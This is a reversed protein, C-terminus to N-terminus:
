EGASGGPASKKPLLSRDRLIRRGFDLRMAEDAPIEVLDTEEPPSTQKLGHVAVNREMMILCENNLGLGLIEWISSL